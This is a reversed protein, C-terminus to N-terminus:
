PTRDHRRQSAQGRLSGLTQDPAPPGGPPPSLAPARPRAASGPRREPEPTTMSAPAAVPRAVAAYYAWFLRAAVSRYPSWLGATAKLAQEKPRGPFSLAQGVAVQLALDGAPFVDRHGACFLLYCEATWTGVGRVATLERSAAEPTARAVRGFDLRGDALAEAITVAAIQKARSLGAGRFEADGAALLAAPGGLPVLAALRAFIAEASARSVQQAVVIRLLGALGPESSRLPVAGAAAIVAALRPDLRALAALDEEVDERSRIM